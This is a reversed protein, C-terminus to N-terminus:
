ADREEIMKAMWRNAILRPTRAAYIDTVTLDEIDLNTVLEITRLSDGGLLYFDDNVSIRMTKEGKVEDDKTCLVKGMEICLREELENEPAVYEARYQEIEPAKLAQRNVKGNPLHPVEDLHVFYSPIMYTPLVKMLEERVSAYNMFIPATYYLVIYSREPEVFGKAFAWDIGLVKKVAAEIEAPEIRNGNIKIMDSKRGLIVYNGDENIRAIDGSRFYGNIYSSKNRQEDKIYGRTYLNTYCLEGIQGPKLENGDDDCIMVDCVGTPKGIPTIKFEQDIRYTCILFASETQAYMNILPITPHYVTGVTEMAFGIWRVNSKCTNRYLSVPIGIHTVGNNQLYSYLKDANKITEYSPITATTAYYISYSFGFTISSALTGFMANVDDDKLLLEGDVTWSKASLELKGYEHLIGKPKGESGSTYIAFAADHKDTEEHGTLTTKNLMEVYVQTTVVVKCPCDCLMMKRREEPIGEDILLSAAGAKWIGLQVVYTEIGRPLQINVFDERGIGKEKLYAYVRGSLEDLERFTLSNHEDRLIVKDPYKQVNEEFQEIFRKETM